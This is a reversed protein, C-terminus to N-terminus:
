GAPEVAPWVEGASCHGTRERRADVSPRRSRVLRRGRTGLPDMFLVNGARAYPGGHNQYGFFATMTGNQFIDYWGGAPPIPVRLAHPIARTICRHVCRLSCHALQGLEQAHRLRRQPRLREVSM